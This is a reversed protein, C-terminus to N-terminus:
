LSRLIDFRRLDEETFLHKVSNFINDIAIRTDSSGFGQDEPWNGYQAEAEWRIAQRQEATVSSACKRTIVYMALNEHLKPFLSM